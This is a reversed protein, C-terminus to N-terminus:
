SYISRILQRMLQNSEMMEKGVFLSGESIGLGSSFTVIYVEQTTM